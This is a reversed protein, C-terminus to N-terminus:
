DHKFDNKSQLLNFNKFSLLLKYGEIHIKDKKIFIINPKYINILNTLNDFSQKEDLLAIACNTKLLSVYGSISELNNGCVLFALQRTKIKQSIKDSFKILNKYNIIENNEMILADNNNFKNLNELISM